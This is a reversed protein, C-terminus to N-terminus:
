EGQTSVAASAQRLYAHGWWRYEVTSLSSSVSDLLEVTSLEATTDLTCEAVLGRRRETCPAVNVQTFLVVAAPLGRHARCASGKSLYASICIRLYLMELARAQQPVWPLSLWVASLVM